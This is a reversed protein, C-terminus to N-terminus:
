GRRHKRSGPHLCESANTMLRQAHSLFTDMRMGDEADVETAETVFTDATHLDVVYNSFTLGTPNATALHRRLIM